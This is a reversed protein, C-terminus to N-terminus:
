DLMLKPTSILTGEISEGRLAAAFPANLSGFHLGRCVYERGTVYLGFGTFASEATEMVTVGADAVVGPLQLVEEALLGELAREAM